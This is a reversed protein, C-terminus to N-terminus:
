RSPTIGSVEKLKWGGQNQHDGIYVLEGAAIANYVEEPNLGKLNIVEM